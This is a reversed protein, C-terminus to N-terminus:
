EKNIRCRISDANVHMVEITGDEIVIKRQNIPYYLNYALAANGQSFILAISFTHENPMGSYVISYNKTLINGKLKQSQGVQLITEEM